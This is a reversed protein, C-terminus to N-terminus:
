NLLLFSLFIFCYSFVIPFIIHDYFKVRETTKETESITQPSIRFTEVLNFFYFYFVFFYGYHCYMEEEENESEWGDNESYKEFNSEDM